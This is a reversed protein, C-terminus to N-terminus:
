KQVEGNGNGHGPCIIRIQTEITEVIFHYNVGIM